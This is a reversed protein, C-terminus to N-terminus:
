KKVAAKKVPEDKQTEAITLADAAPHSAPDVVERDDAAAPKYENGEAKAALKDQAVQYDDKSLGRPKEDAVAYYRDDVYEAM